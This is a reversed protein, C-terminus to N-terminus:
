VAICSQARPAKWGCWCRGTPHATGAGFVAMARVHRRLQACGCYRYRIAATVFVYIWVAIVREKLEASRTQEVLRRGPRFYRLLMAKTHNEEPQVRELLM